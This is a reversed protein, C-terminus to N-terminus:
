STKKLNKPYYSHMSYVVKDVERPNVTCQLLLVPFLVLQLIFCDSQGTQRPCTELSVIGLKPFVKDSDSILDEQRELEEYIVKSWYLVIGPGQTIYM